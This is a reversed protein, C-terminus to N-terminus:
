DFAPLDRAQTLFRAMAATLMASRVVVGSKSQHESESDSDELIEAKCMMQRFGGLAHPVNILLGEMFRDQPDEGFWIRQVENQVWVGFRKRILPAFLYNLRPARCPNVPLHQRQQQQPQQLQQQQVRRFFAHAGGLQQQQQQQAQQPQQQQQPQQPQEPALAEDTKFTLVCTKIAYSGAMPDFEFLLSGIAGLVSEESQCTQGPGESCQSDCEDSTASLQDDAVALDAVPSPPSVEGVTTAAPVEGGPTEELMPRAFSKHERIGLLHQVQGDEDRFGVHLIEVFFKLGTSDSLHAPFSRPLTAFTVLDTSYIQEDIFRQFRSKDSDALYNLFPRGELVRASDSSMMLLASLQELDGIIKLDADLCVQADYSVSLLRRAVSYKSDASEFRSHARLRERLMHVLAHQVIWTGFSASFELLCFVA